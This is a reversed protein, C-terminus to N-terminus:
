YPLLESASIPDIKFVRENALDPAGLADGSLEAWIGGKYRMLILTLHTGDEYRVTHDAFPTMTEAEYWEVDILSILSAATLLAEDSDSLEPDDASIEIVRDDGMPSIEVSQVPKTRPLGVREPDIWWSPSHLAPFDTDILWSQNDGARRGYTRGAKVGIIAASARINPFHILAGTGSTEPDGLGLAQLRAPLSTRPGTFHATEIASLMAEIKNQVVPFDGREPVVWGDPTNELTYRERNTLISIIQPSANLGGFVRTNSAPEPGPKASNVSLIFAFAVMVLFFAGAFLMFRKDQARATELKM